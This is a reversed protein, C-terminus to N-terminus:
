YCLLDAWLLEDETSLYVRYYGKVILSDNYGRMSINFMYKGAMYMGTIVNISDVDKVIIANNIGLVETFLDNTKIAPKYWMKLLGNKRHEINVQFFSNSPNPFVSKISINIGDRNDRPKGFEGLIKGTNDTNIIGTVIPPNLAISGVLEESSQNCSLFFICFLTCYILKKM